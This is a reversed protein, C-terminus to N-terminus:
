MRYNSIDDLAAQDTAVNSTQGDPGKSYVQFGEPTDNLPFLNYDFVTDTSVGYDRRLVIVYPHGWPDFPLFDSKLVGWGKLQSIIEDTRTAGDADIDKPMAGRKAQFAHLASELTAVGSQASQIEMAHKVHTAAVVILGAIVGSIGITCALEALTFGRQARKGRM